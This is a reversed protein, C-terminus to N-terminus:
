QHRWVKVSSILLLAALAPILAASPVVGLLLGGLLTGTISGAAMTLVFRTNDRLVSFSQDRSYCRARSHTGIKTQDHFSADGRCTRSQKNAFM